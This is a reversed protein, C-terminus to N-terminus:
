ADSRSLCATSAVARPSPTESRKRHAIMEDHLKAVASSATREFLGPVLAHVFCALGAMILSGSFRLAFSQHELYSENVSRPHALFWRDLM